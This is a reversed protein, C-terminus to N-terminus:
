VLGLTAAQLWRGGSSSVKFIKMPVVLLMGFLVHRPVTSRVLWLLHGSAMEGGLFMPTAMLMALLELDVSSSAVSLVFFAGSCNCTFWWESDGSFHYAYRGLIEEFLADVTGSGFFGLSPCFVEDALHLAEFSVRSRALYCVGLGEGSNFRLDVLRLLPQFLKNRLLPAAEVLLV